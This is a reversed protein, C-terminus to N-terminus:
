RTTGSTAAAARTRAGDLRVEVHETARVFHNHNDILGPIVTAGGLDTVEAGPGAHAKVAADTGVAVVRGSDIAVAQCVSFQDDVTVIKGNVLVVTGM